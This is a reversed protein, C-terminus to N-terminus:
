AAARFAAIEDASMKEFIFCLRPAHHTRTLIVIRHVLRTGPPRKPQHRHYVAVHGCVRCVRVAERTYQGPKLPPTGFLWEAEADSFPPDLIVADYTDDAIWDLNHADATWTPSTTANL